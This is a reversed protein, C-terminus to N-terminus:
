VKSLLELANKEILCHGYENIINILSGKKYYNNCYETIAFFTKVFKPNRITTSSFVIYYKENYLFLSNNGLYLSNSLTKSFSLMNQLNDFEYINSTIRYLSNRRSTSYNNSDPLDYIKTIVIMFQNNFASAEIFLRSNEELFEDKLEAEELLKFFFCQARAKNTQLDNPSIKRSALEEISLTIKIKDNSIKEIKM